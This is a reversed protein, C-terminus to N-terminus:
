PLAWRPLCLRAVLGALLLGYAVLLLNRELTMVGLLFRMLRIIQLAALPDMQVLAANAARSVGGPCWGPCQWCPM